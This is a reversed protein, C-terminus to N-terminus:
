ERESGRTFGGDITKAIAKRINEGLLCIQKRRQNLQWRTILNPIANPWERGLRTFLYNGSDILVSHNQPSPFHSLKLIPSLPYSVLVLLM